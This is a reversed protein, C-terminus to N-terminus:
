FVLITLAVYPKKQFLYSALFFAQRFQKWHCNSPNNAVHLFEHCYIQKSFDAGFDPHRLIQENIYEHKVFTTFLYYLFVKYQGNNIAADLWVKAWDCIYSTLVLTFKWGRNKTSCNNTQLKNWCKHCFSQLRYPGWCLIIVRGMELLHLLQLTGPAPLRYSAWIKISIQIPTEWIGFKSIGLRQLSKTTTHKHKRKLACFLKEWHINQSSRAVTEHYKIIFLLREFCLM